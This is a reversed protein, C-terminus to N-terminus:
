DKSVRMLGFGIGDKGMNELQFIAKFIKETPVLNYYSTNRMNNPLLDESNKDSVVQWNILDDSYALKVQYDSMSGNRSNSRFSYLMLYGNGLSIVEPAAQCEYEDITDEILDKNLKRWQIGDASTAMRIKYTPEPRGDILNWSKGAVYWMYLIGNFEKVRPSGLLFPEEQDFSIVPGPFIRKFQSYSASTAEVLGINATYPVSVSRSWGCYYIFTRGRYNIVTIPTIGHEDFAGIEGLEVVPHKSYNVIQTFNENYDVFYIRSTYNDGSKESVPRSCFYIRQFDNIKLLAPSQIHSMESNILKSFNAATLLTRKDDLEIKM